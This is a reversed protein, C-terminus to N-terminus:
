LIVEKMDPMEKGFHRAISQRTKLDLVEFRGEVTDLTNLIIGGITREWVTNTPDNQNNAQCQAMKFM